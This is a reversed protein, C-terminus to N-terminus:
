VHSTVFSCRAVVDVTGKRREEVGSKAVVLYNFNVANNDFPYTQYDGSAAIPVISDVIDEMNHRVDLASIQGANNDALESSITSKLDSAKKVAM